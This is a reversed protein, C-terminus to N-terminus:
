KRASLFFASRKQLFSAFSKQTSDRANSAACAVLVFTKQNKKEFFFMRGKSAQKVLNGTKASQTGRHDYPRNSKLAHSSTLMGSRATAPESVVRRSPQRV